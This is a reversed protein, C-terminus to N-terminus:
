NCSHKSRAYPAARLTDDISHHAPQGVPVHVRVDERDYAHRNVDAAAQEKAQAIEEPSADYQYNRIEEIHKITLDRTKRTAHCPESAKQIRRKVTEGVHDAKDPQHNKISAGCLKMRREVDKQCAGSHHTRHHDRVSASAGLTKYRFAVHTEQATGFPNHQQYDAREGRM